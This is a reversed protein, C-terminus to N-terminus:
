QLRYQATKWVSPSLWISIVINLCGRKAGVALVIPGQEVSIRIQLVGRNKFSDLVMAQGCGGHYLHPNIFRTFIQLISM